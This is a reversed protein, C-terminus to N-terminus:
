RREARLTRLDANLRFAVVTRGALLCFRLLKGGRFHSLSGEREHHEVPPQVVTTGMIGLCLALLASPIPNDPGIVPAARVWDARSVIKLPANPDKPVHGFLLTLLARFGMSTIHRLISDQRDDRVALVAGKTRYAEWMAPFSSLSIQRDSDLILLAAGRAANLGTILAPGHGGNARTILRLRPERAALDAVIAGTRDTSGDNVVIIECAPVVQAVESLVDEIAGQISVEENYAPMVISLEVPAGHM